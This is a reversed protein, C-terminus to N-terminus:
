NNIANAWAAFDDRANGKVSIQPEGGDKVNPYATPMAYAKIATAQEMCAEETEATLLNLPIGTETAVKERIDRIANMKKIADLEAQLNTAKETIKEIETKNAEELQDFKAAKEKLVDYDVYKAEARKLRDGVIANLEAQTFTKEETVETTEQNVTENM